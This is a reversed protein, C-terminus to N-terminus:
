DSQAINRLYGDYLRKATETCREDGKALLDAYVLLPHVCDDPFGKAADAWRSVLTDGWFPRLVQVNGDPDPQLGVSVLWKDSLRDAYITVTEPRLYRTLRSAAIEGGWKANPPLAPWSPWERVSDCQYCQTVLRHRLRALYDTAWLEILRDREVLRRADGDDLLFGMNRLDELVTGMSGLAVGSAKALSRMPRNLLANRPSNTLDSDSLLAFIVKVASQRHLGTVVRKVGARKGFIWIHLGPVDLFANGAADMFAIGRERLLKAASAGIQAAVVMPRYDPACRKAMAELRPLAALSLTGGKVEVLHPFGRKEVRLTLVADGSFPTASPVERLGDFRLHPVEEGVAKM